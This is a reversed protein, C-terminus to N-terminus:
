NEQANYRSDRHCIRNHEPDIIKKQLQRAPRLKRNVLYLLANLVHMDLIIYALNRSSTYSTM